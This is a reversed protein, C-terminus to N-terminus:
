ERCECKDLRDKGKPTCVVDGSADGSVECSAACYDHFRKRARHLRVKAANVTTGEAAAIAKLPAGELYHMILIRTYSEPLHAIGDRVCTGVEKREIQGVIGESAGEIEKEKQYPQPLSSGARFYDVCINSAIQFIWTSLMSEGRFGDWGRAVRILTEQVLDEVDGENKSVKAMFAALRPRYSSLVADLEANASPSTM